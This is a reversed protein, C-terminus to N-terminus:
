CLFVSRFSSFHFLQGYFSSVVQLLPSVVLFQLPFCSILLSQFSADVPCFEESAQAFVSPFPLSPLPLSWAPFIWVALCIDSSSAVTMFNTSSLLSSNAFFLKNSPSIASTFCTFLLISHCTSVNDQRTKLSAFKSFSLLM